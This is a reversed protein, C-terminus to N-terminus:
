LEKRLVTRVARYDPMKRVWGMRGEEVEVAVAGAERALHEFEPLKDNLWQDVDEGGLFDIFAVIGEAGNRTGSSFTALIRDEERVWWVLRTGSMVRNRIEDAEISADGRVIAAQFYPRLISWLIKVDEKDLLELVPL